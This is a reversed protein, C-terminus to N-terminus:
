SPCVKAPNGCGGPPEQVPTDPAVTVQINTVTPRISSGNFAKPIAVSADDEWGAAFEVAFFWENSGSSTNIFQQDYTQARKVPGIGTTQFGGVPVTNGIGWIGGSPSYGIVEGTVIYKVGACQGGTFGAPVLAAQCQGISKYKGTGKAVPKCVGGECNYDSDQAERCEKLTKFSGVPAKGVAYNGLTCSGDPGAIYADEGNADSPITPSFGGSSPLSGTRDATTGTSLNDGSGRGQKADAVIGAGRGMLQVPTGDAIAGGINWGAAMTGGLADRVQPRGLVPNYVSGVGTGPNAAMKEEAAIRRVKIQDYSGGRARLADLMDQNRQEGENQWYQQWTTM